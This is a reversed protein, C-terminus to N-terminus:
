HHAMAQPSTLTQETAFSGIFASRKGSLKWTVNLDKGEYMDLMAVAAMAHTTQTLPKYFTEENGCLHDKSNLMRTEIGAITGATMKIKNYHGNEQSVEFDIPAAVVRVVDNLLQGGMNKAFNLLAAGQAPTAKEDVLVVAKAAPINGTYPDGITADAKIVAVVGLGDVKVGNWSGNNIRWGMVAQDGVLNMEANAVCYGTYVDANRSEVYDGSIQQANGTSAMALVSLCLSALIFMRRM